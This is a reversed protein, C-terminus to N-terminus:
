GSLINRGFMLIAIPVPSVAIGITLVFGPLSFLKSAGAMMSIGGGGGLVINGPLNVLVALAVYRHRLFFPIFRNPARVILYNLREDQDMPELARLLQSARQLRIGELLTALWMLSVFRGVFYSICLGFITSVYVLFVIASGIMGILALGIEVGPVFPIAILLAYAVALLMTMRHVFDETSPRIEFQLASVIWDSVFHAAAIVIILAAIRLLSRWQDGLARAISPM